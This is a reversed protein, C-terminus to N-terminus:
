KAQKETLVQGLVMEALFRFLKRSLEGANVAKRIEQEGQLGIWWDVWKGHADNLSAILTRFDAFDAKTVQKM